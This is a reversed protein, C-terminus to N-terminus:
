WTYCMRVWEYVGKHDQPKAGLHVSEPLMEIATDHLCMAELKVDKHNRKGTFVFKNQDNMLM